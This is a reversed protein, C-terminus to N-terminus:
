ELVHTDLRARSYRDATERVYILDSDRFRKVEPAEARAEEEGSGDGSDPGSDSAAM